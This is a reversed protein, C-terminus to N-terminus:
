LRWYRFGAQEMEEKGYMGKVDILIRSPTDVAYLSALRDADWARFQRHRVTFLLANAGQIKEVPIFAERVDAPLRAPDAVPDAVQVPIELQRLKRFIELAMSNRLDPCDEKFTIGLLFVRARRIRLDGLIMERIAEKVVYDGMGENIHRSLATLTSLYGERKAEYVFYYPDVGICHGGVLGPRFHLANWKTDMADAVEGTDIGMAHCAMAVDNMFAINVDRQTNEILKAAEAVKISSAPFLDAQIITGYLAAVKDRTERNDGSVIKCINRLRHVKDGPNIREPSYALHFDGGAKLGSEAELIPGCIQETVGPYVTSEYCVITGPSLNRGITRSAEQVPSLDPLKDRSVPTPVAVIIFAAERLRAPDSTFELASSKLAEDGVEKTVDRGQRYSELKAENTDYGVTSFHDALAVALPLGVYGLGVVAVKTKADLKVM